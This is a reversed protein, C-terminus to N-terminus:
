SCLPAKLENLGRGVDHEINELAQLCYLSRTKGLNEQGLEEVILFLAKSLAQSLILLSDLQNTTDAVASLVIQSIKEIKELYISQKNLGEEELEAPTRQMARAVQTDLNHLLALLNTELLDGKPHKKTTM